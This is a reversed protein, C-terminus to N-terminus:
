REEDEYEKDKKRGLRRTIEEIDKEQMGDGFSKGNGNSIKILKEMLEEDFSDFIEDDLIIFDEVDQNNNIWEKIENGRKNDIHPTIDTFIGYNLLLNRLVQGNKTSRWSSSLVVKAGTDRVAKQLLKIKNIDVESEIGQINLGKIRDFYEDSNLVGDIDLFIVKM